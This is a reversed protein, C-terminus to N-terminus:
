GNPNVRLKSARTSLIGRRVWLFTPVALAYILFIVAWAYYSFSGPVGLGVADMLYAIAVFPILHLAYLLKYTWFFRWFGIGRAPDIKADIWNL